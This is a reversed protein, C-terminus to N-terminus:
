SFSRSKPAGHDRRMVSDSFMGEEEYDDDPQLNRPDRVSSSSQPRDKRSKTPGHKM